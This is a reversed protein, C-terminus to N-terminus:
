YCSVPLQKKKNQIKLMIHRNMVCYEWNKQLKNIRIREIANDYKEKESLLSAARADTTETRRVPLISRILVETICINRLGCYVNLYLNYTM